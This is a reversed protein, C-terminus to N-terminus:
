GPQGALVRKSASVQAANCRKTYHTWKAGLAKAGCDAIIEIGGVHALGARAADIGGYIRGQQVHVWEHRVVDLIRTAPTRPAIYVVGRSLDTAGWAGKDAVIWTASRAGPVRNVADNLRQEFSVVKVAKAKTTKRPAASATTASLTVAAAAATAVAVIKAFM